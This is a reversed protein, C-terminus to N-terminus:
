GKRVAESPAYGVFPLDKKLVRLHRLAFRSWYFAVEDEDEEFSNYAVTVKAYDFDESHIDGLWFDVRELRDKPLTRIAMRRAGDRSEADVEVGVAMRVNWLEVARTVVHGTGSGLDIFVDSPRLRALRLLASTSTESLEYSGFRWPVHRLVAFLKKL